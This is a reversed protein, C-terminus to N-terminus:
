VQALLACRAWCLPSLGPCGWPRCHPLCLLAEPADGLGLLSRKWGREEEGALPLIVDRYDLFDARRIEGGISSPYLRSLGDFLQLELWWVLLRLTSPTLNGLKGTLAAILVSLSPQQQRWDSADFCSGARHKCHCILLLSIVVFQQDWNGDFLSM